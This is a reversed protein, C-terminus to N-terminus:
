SIHFVSVPWKDIVTDFPNQLGSIDHGFNVVNM